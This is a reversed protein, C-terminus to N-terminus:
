THQKPLWTQWCFSVTHTAVGAFRISPAGNVRESETGFEQKDFGM